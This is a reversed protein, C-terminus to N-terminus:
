IKKINGSEDIEHTIKDMIFVSEPLFFLVLAPVAFVLFTLVAAATGDSLYAGYVGLALVSFATLKNKIM